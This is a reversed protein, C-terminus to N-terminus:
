LVYKKAFLMEEEPEYLNGDLNANSILDMFQNRAHKRGETSFVGPLNLEDYGNWLLRRYFWDRVQRLGASLPEDFRLVQFVDAPDLWLLGSWPDGPRYENPLPRNKTMEVFHLLLRVWCKIFLPDLCADNEAMRFEMTLKRQGSAGFGGGKMIRYASMSHYKYGAAKAILEDPELKSTVDFLDTMSMVQCYRNLKRHQPVSDMFVHECKIYWAIVSALQEATMDGISVHVHLSCRRDSSFKGDRLAKVVQVCSRLGHWGKLVPSCIEIGCSSDPKVIWAENDYTHHWGQIQVGKKLTRHIVLAVRDSGVPTEGEDEDLKRVIGDLTNLEVEIGFRRHIQCDLVRDM